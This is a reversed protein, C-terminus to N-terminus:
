IDGCDWVEVLDKQMVVGYFKKNSAYVTNEFDGFMYDGKPSTIIFFNIWKYYDESICAQVTFVEEDEDTVPNYDAYAGVYPSLTISRRKFNEIGNDKAYDMKFRPKIKSDTLQKILYLEADKASQYTPNATLIELSKKIHKNM